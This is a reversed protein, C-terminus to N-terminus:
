EDFIFKYQPDDKNCNQPTVSSSKAWRCFKPLPFHNIFCNPCNKGEVTDRDKNGSKKVPKKIAKFKFIKQVKKGKPKLKPKSLRQDEYDEDDDFTQEINLLQFWNYDEFDKIKRSKVKKVGKSVTIFEMETSSGSM